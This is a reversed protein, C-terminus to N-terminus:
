HFCIRWDRDALTQRLKSYPIHMSQIHIIAHKWIGLLGPLTGSEKSLCIGHFSLKYSTPVVSFQTNALPCPKRVTVNGCPRRFGQQQSLRYFTSQHQCYLMYGQRTSSIIDVNFEFPVIAVELGVDIPVQDGNLGYENTCIYMQLINDYPHEFPEFHNLHDCAIGDGQNQAGQMGWKKPTDLM